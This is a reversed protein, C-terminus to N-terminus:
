IIQYESQPYLSLQQTVYSTELWSCKICVHFNNQPKINADLNFIHIHIYQMSTYIYM